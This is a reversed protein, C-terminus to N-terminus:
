PIAHIENDNEDHGLADASDTFLHCKCYFIFNMKEFVHTCDYDDHLVGDYFDFCTDACEHPLYCSMYVYGLFGIESSESMMQHEVLINNSEGDAATSVGATTEIERKKLSAGSAPGALLALLACIVLLTEVTSKSRQNHPIMATQSAFAIMSTKLFSM